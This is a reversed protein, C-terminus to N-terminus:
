RPLKARIAVTASEDVAHTESDVVVGYDRAASEPSVYRNAVDTAVMGAPRESPPGYGAGGCDIGVLYENV